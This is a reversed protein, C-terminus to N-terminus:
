KNKNNLQRHFQDDYQRRFATTVHKHKLVLLSDLMHFSAPTWISNASQLLPNSPNVTLWPYWLVNSYESFLDRDSAVVAVKCKSKTLATELLQKAAEAPSHIVVVYPETPLSINSDSNLLPLVKLKIDNVEAIHSLHVEELEEVRYTKEIFNLGHFLEKYKDWLIRRAIYIIPIDVNLEGLVGCPFTDVYLKTINLTAIKSSIYNHITSKNWSECLHIDRGNLLQEPLQHLRSCNTLIPTNYPLGLTNIVRLTRVIHGVGSGFAYCAEM